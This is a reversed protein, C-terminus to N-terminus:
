VCRESVTKSWEEFEPEPLDQNYKYSALQDLVKSLLTKIRTIYSKVEGYLSLM